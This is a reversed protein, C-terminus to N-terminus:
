DFISFDIDDKIKIKILEEITGINYYFIWMGYPPFKDDLKCLKKCTGDIDLIDGVIEPYEQILENCKQKCENLDYYIRDISLYEIWDFQGNFVLDPEKPLRIDKKCLELYEYINNPKPVSNKIIDIATYYNIGNNYCLDKISQKINKPLNKWDFTKLESSIIRVKITHKVTKIKIIGKNKSCKISKNLNNYSNTSNFNSSNNDINKLFMVYGVVSNCIQQIKNEENSLTFTEMIIGKEKNKYKRLSRGMKQIFLVTSRKEVTDLSIGIDIKPDDFGERCRGVCILLAPTQYLMFRNLGDEDATLDTHTIFLKYNNLNPFKDKNQKYNNILNYWVNANYKTDSWAIAKKTVSKGIVKDIYKILRNCENSTIRKNIHSHKVKTNTKVEIWYFDPPVILDNDIADIFSMRSIFNVNYSDGFLYAIRNFKKTETRIPTASFGVLCKLNIWNNQFYKLMSYTTEAGSSHCEDLIILGIKNKLINLYRNDYLISATNTIILSPKTQNLKDNLKNINVKGNYLPHYNFKNFSPLLGSQICKLLKKDDDFQSKLIDKRDTIWLVSNNYYEWYKGIMSIATITKGSGTPHCVIGSSINNKLYKYEFTNLADQQHNYLSIINHKNNINDLQIGAAIYIYNKVFKYVKLALSKMSIDNNIDYFIDFNYKKNNDSIRNKALRTLGSKTVYLGLILTYNVINSVYETADIFHTVDESKQKNKKWKDQITILYKDIIIIHDIGNVSYGFQKTIDKDSTMCIDVKDKFLNHINKELIYGCKQYFNNSIM